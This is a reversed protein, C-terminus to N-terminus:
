VYGLYLLLTVIFFSLLYLKLGRYYGLGGGVGKGEKKRKSPCAPVYM